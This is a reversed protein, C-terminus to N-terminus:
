SLKKSKKPYNLFYNLTMESTLAFSLNIELMGLDLTDLKETLLQMQAYQTEEAEKVRWLINQMEAREEKSSKMSKLSEVVNENYFM